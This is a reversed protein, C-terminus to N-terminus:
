NFIFLYGVSFDVNEIFITQYVFFVEPSCCLLSAFFFWVTGTINSHLDAEMFRPIHISSLSLKLENSNLVNCGRPVVMRIRMKMM